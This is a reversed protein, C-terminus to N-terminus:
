YVQFDINRPYIHRFFICLISVSVVTVKLKTLLQNLRLCLLPGLSGDIRDQFMLKQRTSLLVHVQFTHVYMGPIRGQWNGSCVHEAAAVPQSCFM